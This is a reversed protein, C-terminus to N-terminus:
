KDVWETLVTVLQDSNNGKFLKEFKKLSLDRLLLRLAVYRGCTRINPNRKQFQHENYQIRYPSEVILKTLYPFDQNTQKKLNTPVEDLPSDIESGYSDFFELEKGRKMILVWHGYTFPKKQFVYLIIAAKHPGLLEDITKYKKIDSYLVLNARGDVLQLLEHDSLGHSVGKM